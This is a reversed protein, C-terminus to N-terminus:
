DSFLSEFSRIISETLGIMEELSPIVECNGAPGAEPFILRMKPKTAEVHTIVARGDIVAAKVEPTTINGGAPILARHKDQIDLDHLARLVSNGEPYPRLKRLLEIAEDSARNFHKDVIMREFHHASSGFPFHVGKDNGGSLRVVLSALIDLSARCNHVTDGIVAGYEPGPLQVVVDLKARDASTAPRFEFAYWDTCFHDEELVRLRNLHRRAQKTKLRPEDFPVRVPGVGAMTLEIDASYEM